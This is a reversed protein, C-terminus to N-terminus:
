RCRNSTASSPTGSESAGAHPRRAHPGPWPKKLTMAGMGSWRKGENEDERGAREVRTPGQVGAAPGSNPAYTTASVIGISSM